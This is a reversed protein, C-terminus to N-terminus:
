CQRRRRRYAAEAQCRRCRRRGSSLAYSNEHSLLHGKSCHTRALRKKRDREAQAEGRCAVSCYISKSNRRKFLEQCNPCPVELLLVSRCEISCWRAAERRRAGYPYFRVGCNECPVLAADGRQMSSAHSGLAIITRPNDSDREVIGLLATVQSDDCWAKARTGCDLVSKLLNDTDIRQSSSRFFLCAVAVNGQLPRIRALAIRLRTAAAETLRAKSAPEGLVVLCQIQNQSYVTQLLAMARFRSEQNASFQSLSAQAM